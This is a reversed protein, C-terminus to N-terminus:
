TARTGFWALVTWVIGAVYLTGFIHKNYQALWSPLYIDFNPRRDTTYRAAIDTLPCRWANFILVFSEVAVVGILAGALAFRQRLAAFSILVVCSAFFAWAVTHILKVTRLRSDEKNM